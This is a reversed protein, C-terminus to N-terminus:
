NNVAKLMAQKSDEAFKKQFMRCVPYGLKVILYNPRSFALLDYYVNNTTHDWEISFREEGSEAHAPLTGYAFGFKDVEGYEELTYVIRCANLSWFGLTNALVAVVQGTEIPTNDWCIEVWPFDYMQWNQLATKAKEFATKGTGLKIRNRDIVYDTPPQNRTAELDKYTYNKDKQSFIFKNIIEISPKSLFFM